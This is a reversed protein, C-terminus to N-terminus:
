VAYVALMGTRRAPTQTRVVTDMPRSYTSVNSSCARYTWQLEAGVIPRRLAGISTSSTSFKLPHTPHVPPHPYHTHSHTQSTTPHSHHYRHHSYAV